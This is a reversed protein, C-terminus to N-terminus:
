LREGDPRNPIVYVGIATLAALVAQALQAYVSNPMNVVVVQLVAGILAVWFKNYRTLLNM